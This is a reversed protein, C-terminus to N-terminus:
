EGPTGFLRQALTALVTSVFVIIGAAAKSGIWRARLQSSAVASEVNQIRTLLPLQSGSGRYLKDDLCKVDSRLSDISTKIGQASDEWRREMESMARRLDAIADRTTELVIQVSLPLNDDSPM